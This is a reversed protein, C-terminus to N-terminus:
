RKVFQFKRRAGRQGPKKREKVRADVTLLGHERLTEKLDPNDRLLARAVGLRVAGAQSCPGGGTVNIKLTYVGQAGCVVLPKLADMRNAETNFYAEFPRNNVVVEGKGKKLWVRAVSSKRRGVGGISSTIIKTGKKLTPKASSMAGKSAETQTTVVVKASAAKASSAKKPAAKKPAAKKSSTKTKIMIRKIRLKKPNGVSQIGSLPVM